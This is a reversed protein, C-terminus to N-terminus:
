GGLLRMVLGVVAGILLLGCASSQIFFGPLRKEVAQSYGV